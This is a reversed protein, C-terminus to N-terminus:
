GGVVDDMWAGHKAGGMCRGMCPGDYGDGFGWKLRVWCTGLRVVHYQQQITAVIHGNSYADM